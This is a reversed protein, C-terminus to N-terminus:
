TPGRSIAIDNLLRSFALLTPGRGKNRDQVVDQSSAVELVAYLLCFLTCPAVIIQADDYVFSVQSKYEDRLNLWGPCARGSWSASREFSERGRPSGLVASQSVSVAM